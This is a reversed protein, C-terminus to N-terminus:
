WLVPTKTSRPSTSILWFLPILLPIAGGIMLAYLGIKQWNTLKM